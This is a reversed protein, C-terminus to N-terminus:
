KAAEEKSNLKKIEVIVSTKLYSKLNGYTTEHTRFSNNFNKLSQAFTKKDAKCDIGSLTTLQNILVQRQALVEAAQTKFSNFNAEVTSTDKGESKLSDIKTQVSAEINSISQTSKSLSKNLVESRKAINASIKDCTATVRQTKEAMKTEKADMKEAKVTERQAKQEQKLAEQEPTKEAHAPSIFVFLVLILFKLIKNKKM